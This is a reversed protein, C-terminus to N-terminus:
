RVLKDPHSKLNMGVVYGESFPSRFCWPFPERDSWPIDPWRINWDQGDKALEAERIKDGYPVFLRVYAEVRNLRMWELFGAPVRYARWQPSPAGAGPWQPWQEAFAEAITRTEVKAEGSKQEIAEVAEAVGAYISNPQKPVWDGNEYSYGLKHALRVLDQALGRPDPLKPTVPTALSKPEQKAAQERIRQTVPPPDARVVTVPLYQRKPNQQYTTKLQTAHGAEFKGFSLPSRSILIEGWQTEIYDVGDCHPNPDTTLRRPELVEERGEYFQFITESIWRGLVFRRNDENSGAILEHQTWELTRFPGFVPGLDGSSLTLPTIFYPM